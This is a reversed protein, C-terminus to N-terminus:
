RRCHFFDVSMKSSNVIWKDWYKRFNKLKLKQTSALFNNIDLGWIISFFITEFSFTSRTVDLHFGGWIESIESKLCDCRRFFRPRISVHGVISLRLTNSTVFYLWQIGITKADINIYVYNHVHIYIYM